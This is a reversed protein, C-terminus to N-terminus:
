QPPAQGLAALEDRLARLRLRLQASDKGTAEAARIAKVQQTMAGRLNQERPSMKPAPTTRSTPSSVPAQGGRPAGPPPVQPTQAPAHDDWVPPATGFPSLAAPGGTGDEEALPDALPDADAGGIPGLEHRRELLEMANDRGMIARSMAGAMDMDHRRGLLDISNGHDRSDNIRATEREATTRADLLPKETELKRQGQVAPPLVDDAGLTVGAQKARVIPVLPALNPDALMMEVVSNALSDERAYGAERKATDQEADWAQKATPKVAGALMGGTLNQLLSADDIRTPNGRLIIALDTPDTVAAGPAFGELARDADKQAWEQTERARSTADWAAERQAKEAALRHTEQRLKLEAAEREDDRRWKHAQLGGSMAGGLAALADDWGM